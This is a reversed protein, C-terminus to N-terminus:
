MLFLKYGLLLGHEIDVDFQSCPLVDWFVRFKINAANLVQYISISNLVRCYMGSSEASIDFDFQSCPLVDWFVRFKKSAANLVHYTSISNLVRCYMGSSQFEQEGGHSGSTECSSPQRSIYRWSTESFIFASSEEYEGGHSGSIECNIVLDQFAKVQEQSVGHLLDRGSFSVTTWHLL